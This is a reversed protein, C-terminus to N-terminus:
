ARSSARRRHPSSPAPCTPNPPAPRPPALPSPPLSAPRDLTDQSVRASHARERALARATTPAEGCVQLWNNVSGVGSVIFVAAFIAGGEIYDAPEKSVFLGFFITIIACAVLALLVPDSLAEKLHMLYSKLKKPAMRNEGFAARAGLWAFYFNLTCIDGQGARGRM